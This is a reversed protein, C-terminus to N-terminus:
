FVFSLSIAWNGDFAEIPGNNVSLFSDGFPEDTDIGILPPIGTPTLPPNNLTTIVVFLDQEPKRRLWFEISSTFASVFEVSAFDGDDAIFDEDLFETSDSFDVTGNARVEGTQVFIEDFAPVMSGSLANGRVLVSTLVAGDEILDLVEERDFRVAYTVGPAIAAASGAFELDGFSALEFVSNTVFDGVPQRNRLAYTVKQSRTDRENAGETADPSLFEEPFGHQGYLQGVESTLNINSATAGDVDPSQLSLWYFDHPVPLVYDGNPIAFNVPPLGLAGDSQRQVLQVTGSFADVVIDGGGRPDNRAYVNAGAIGQGLADEVSGRIVVFEHDFDEDGADEDVTSALGIGNGEPYNFSSWSIDDLHLSRTGLEAEADSIDVFPFMTSGNGDESSIQNILSHSLGHSHGLEHTAIAQIDATAANSAETSWVVSQSFQIDNDLITGAEYFGAPFEIDGDHDADHCTAVGAQQPDFVDSDGDGDIDDGVEFQADVELVTSPSSALAVFDPPTEFTLENIFDFGRTGNGIDRVETIQLEIFSTPIDNWRDMSAQLQQRTTEIDITDPTGQNPLRGSDLTYHVPICREDWHIPVLEVDDFGPFTSEGTLSFRELNGGASALGSCLGLVLAGAITQTLANKM